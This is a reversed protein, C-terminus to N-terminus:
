ISLNCLPDYNLYGADDWNLLGNQSVPLYAITSIVLTIALLAYIKLNDKGSLGDSRLLSM